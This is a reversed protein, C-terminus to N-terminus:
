AARALEESEELEETDEEEWDPDPPFDCTPSLHEKEVDIFKRKGSPHLKPDMTVVYVWAQYQEGPEIHHCCRDCFHPEHALRQYSRLLRKTM